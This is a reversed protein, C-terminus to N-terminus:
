QSQPRLDVNTHEVADFKLFSKTHCDKKAMSCFHTM